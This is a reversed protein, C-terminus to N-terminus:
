GARLIEFGRTVAKFEPDDPDRLEKRYQELNMWRYESHDEPDLKIDAESSAFQAFFIIEV